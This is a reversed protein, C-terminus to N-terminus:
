GRDARRVHELARDKLISFDFVGQNYGSAVCRYLYDIERRLQAIEADRQDLLLRLGDDDLPEGHEACFLKEGAPHGFEDFISVVRTARDGCQCCKKTPFTTVNM